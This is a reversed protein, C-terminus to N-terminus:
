SLAMGCALQRMGSDYEFAFMEGFQAFTALNGGSACGAELIKANQPLNLKRILYTFIRRRAIFWWHKDTVEAMNAYAAQDM